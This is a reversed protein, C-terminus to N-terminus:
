AHVMSLFLKGARVRTGAHKRVRVDVWRGAWRGLWVCVRVYM